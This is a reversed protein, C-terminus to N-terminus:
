ARRTVDFECRRPETAPAEDYFCCCMLFFFVVSLNHTNNPTPQLPWHLSLEADTPFTAGPAPSVRLPSTKPPPVQSLRSCTLRRGSDLQRSDRRRKVEELASKDDGNAEHSGEGHSQQCGVDHTSGFVSGCPSHGCGRSVRARTKKICRSPTREGGGVRKLRRVKCANTTM